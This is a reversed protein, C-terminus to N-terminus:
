PNVESSFLDKYYNVFASEIGEQSTWERGEMDKIATITNRRKHQNACAHFYKINRDGNHLWEEKARQKWKSEEQKLLGHIKGKLDKEAM